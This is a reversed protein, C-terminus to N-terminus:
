DSFFIKKFLFCSGVFQNPLIIHFYKGQFSMKEISFLHNHWDTYFFKTLNPMINVGKNLERKLSLSHLPLHTVYSHENMSILPLDDFTIKEVVKIDHVFDREDNDDCDCISMNKNEYLEKRDEIFDKDLFQEDEEEIENRFHEFIMHMDILIEDLEMTHGNDEMICDIQRRPARSYLAQPFPIPPCYGELDLIKGIVLDNKMKNEDGNILDKCDNVFDSFSDEEVENADSDYMIDKDRIKNEHVENVCNFPVERPELEHIYDNEHYSSSSNSIQFSTISKLSSQGERENAPQMSQLPASDKSFENSMKTQTSKQMNIQMMILKKEEEWAKEKEQLRIYEEWLKNEYKKSFKAVSSASQMEKEMMVDFLTKGRLDSTSLSSCNSCIGCSSRRIERSKTSRKSPRIRRRIQSIETWISSWNVGPSEQTKLSALAEKRSSLLDLVLELRGIKKRKIAAPDSSLTRRM